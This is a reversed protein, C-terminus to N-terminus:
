VNDEPLTPRTLFNICWSGRSPMYMTWLYNITSYKGLIFVSYLCFYRYQMHRCWSIPLGALDNTVIYACLLTTTLWFTLLVILSKGCSFHFKTSKGVPNVMCKWVKRGQGICQLLKINEQSILMQESLQRVYRSGPGANSSYLGLQSASNYLGIFIYPCM